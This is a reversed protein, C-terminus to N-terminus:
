SPLIVVWQRRPLTTGGSTGHPDLIREDKTFDTATPIHRRTSGLKQHRLMSRWGKALIKWKHASYCCFLVIPDPLTPRTDFCVSICLVSLDTFALLPGLPVPARM